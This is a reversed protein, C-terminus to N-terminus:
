DMEADPESWEISGGLWRTGAVGVGDAAVLARVRTDLWFPPTEFGIESTEDSLTRITVVAISGSVPPNGSVPADMAFGVELAGPVPGTRDLSSILFGDELLDGARVDVIEVHAPAYTVVFSGGFLREISEARIALVLQDEEAGANAVEAIVVRNVAPGASAEPVFVRGVETSSPPSGCAAALLAIATACARSRGNTERETM